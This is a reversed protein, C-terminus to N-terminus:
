SVVLKYAAELGALVVEDPVTELNFTTWGKLGWKNPIQTIGPHLDCFQAQLEPTLVLNASRNPEHLTAFTRKKIVKFATRDFHPASETGPFSLALDKFHEVNM